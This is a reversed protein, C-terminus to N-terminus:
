GEGKGGSATELGLEVDEAYNITISFRESEVEIRRPFWGGGDLSTFQGFSLRVTLGEELVVEAAVLRLSRPEVWVREVTAAGGEDREARRRLLVILDGETTIEVEDPAVGELGPVRGGLLAVVEEVRARLPLPPYIASLDLAGHVDLSVTERPTRITVTGGRVDLVGMTTGFASLAELHLMDPHRLVTVQRYVVDDRPTSIRVRAMGRVSRVAHTATVVTRLLHAATFPEPLSPTPRQAACGAALLLLLAAGLFASPTSTICKREAVAAHPEINM